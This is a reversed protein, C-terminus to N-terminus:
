FCRTQKIGEEPFLRAGLLRSPKGGLRPSGGGARHHPSLGRNPGGAGRTGKIGGRGCTAWGVAWVLLHHMSLSCITERRPLRPEVIFGYQDYQEKERRRRRRGDRPKAALLMRGGGKGGEEASRPLPAWARM